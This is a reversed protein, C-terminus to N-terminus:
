KLVSEFNKIKLNPNPDFLYFNANNHIVKKLTSSFEGVYCGVDFINISNKTKISDAVTKSFDNQFFRNFFLYLFNCKLINKILLM